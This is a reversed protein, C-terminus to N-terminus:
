RQEELTVRPEPYALPAPKNDVWPFVPPSAAAPALAPAPAAMPLTSLATQALPSRPRATQTPAWVAETERPPKRGSAVEAAAVSAATVYSRDLSAADWVSLASTLGALLACAAGGVLFTRATFGTERM